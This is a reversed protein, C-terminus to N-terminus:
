GEIAKISSFENTGKSDNYFKVGHISKVFELRHELGNFNEITNKIVESDIKYILAISICALINEINHRGKIKVNKLSMTFNGLENYNVVIDKGDLFIGKALKERASFWIIKPTIKN